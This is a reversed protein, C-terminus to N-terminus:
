ISRGYTNSFIRKVVGCKAWNLTTRLPFHPSFIYDSNLNAKFATPFIEAAGWVIEMRKKNRMTKTSCTYVTIKYDKAEWSRCTTLATKQKIRDLM